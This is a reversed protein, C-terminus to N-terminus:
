PDPFPRVAKWVGEAIAITRGAVTLRGQLFLMDDLRGAISARGEVLDGPRARDVFRIALEITVQSVEFVGIGACGVAHDAFAMLVGNAVFGSSDAHREQTLLGYVDGGPEKRVRVPGFFEVYGEHGDHEWGEAELDPHLPRNNGEGM